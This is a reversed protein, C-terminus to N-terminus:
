TPKETSYSRHRLRLAECLREELGKWEGSAETTATSTKPEQSLFYHYLRLATDAQKVQWEEYSKAMHVLFQKKQDSNIFTSDPVDLFAYCDAVWKVYYPAQYPKVAGKRILYRQFENLM